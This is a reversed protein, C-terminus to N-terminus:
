GRRDDVGASHRRSRLRLVCLLLGAHHHRAHLVHHHLLSGHVLSAHGPEEVEKVVRPDTSEVTRPEVVSDSSDIGSSWDDDNGSTIGGAMGCGDSWSEGGMRVGGGMMTKRGDNCRAGCGSGHKIVGAHHSQTSMSRVPCRRHDGSADGVRRGVDGTYCRPDYDGCRCTDDACDRFRCCGNLFDLVKLARSGWRVAM